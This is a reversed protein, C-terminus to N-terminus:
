KNNKLKETKKEGFAKEYLLAQYRTILLTRSVINLSCSSNRM